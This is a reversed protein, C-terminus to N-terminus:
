GGTFISFAWCVAVVSFKEPHCTLTKCLILDSCHQQAVITHVVLAVVKNWQTV